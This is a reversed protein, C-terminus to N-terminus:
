ADEANIYPSKDATNPFATYEDIDITRSFRPKQRRRFVWNTGVPMDLIRSMPKNARRCNTGFDDLIFWLPVPLRGEQCKEDAFSCLSNMAQTFFTNILLGKSRDTDSVEVFVATKETAINGFDVTPKSMM